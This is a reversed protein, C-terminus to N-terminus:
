ADVALFTVALPDFGPAYRELLVTQLSHVAAGALVLLDGGLSGTHLGSLMALGAAALIDGGWAAPGIRARFLLLALLPTLVVYMGTIFGTSSVTTRLLGATQLAY